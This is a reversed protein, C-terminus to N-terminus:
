GRRAKRAKSGHRHYSAPHAPRAVPQPADAQRVSSWLRGYWPSVAVRQPVTAKKRPGGIIEYCMQTPLCMHLRDRAQQEVYVPSRLLKHETVLRDRHLMIANRKALLQDIQKRQSIYERVPYALSLAIGCLVIALIAARGTFHPRTVPVRGGPPEGPAGPAGRGAAPM